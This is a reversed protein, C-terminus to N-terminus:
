YIIILKTNIQKDEGHREQIFNMLSEKIMGISFKSLTLTLDIFM